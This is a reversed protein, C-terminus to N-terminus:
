ESESSEADLIEFMNASSCISNMGLFTDIHQKELQKKLTINNREYTWAQRIESYKLEQDSMEIQPHDIAM